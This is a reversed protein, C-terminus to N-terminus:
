RVFRLTKLNEKAVRSGLAAAKRYLKKAEKYDQEVGKGNHYCVGLNNQARM